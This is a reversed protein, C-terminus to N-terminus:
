GSGALRGTSSSQRGQVPEAEDRAPLRLVTFRRTVERGEARLVVFYIGSPHHSATRWAIRHWGAPVPGNLPAEILGGGADYIELKAAADRDVHFSIAALSSAPNPAM